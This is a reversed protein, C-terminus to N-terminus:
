GREEFRRPLVAVAALAVGAGRIFHSVIEVASPKPASAITSFPEPSRNPELGLM